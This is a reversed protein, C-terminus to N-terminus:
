WRVSLLIRVVLYAAAIAAAGTIWPEIQDFFSKRKM